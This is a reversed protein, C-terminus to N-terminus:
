EQGNKYGAITAKFEAMIRRVIADAVAQADVGYEGRDIKEHIEALRMAHNGDVTPKPPRM